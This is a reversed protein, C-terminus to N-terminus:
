QALQSHKYIYYFHPNVNIQILSIAYTTSYIKVAYSMKWSKKKDSELFGVGVWGRDTPLSDRPQKLKPCLRLPPAPHLTVEVEHLLPSCGNGMKRNHALLGQVKPLEVCSNPLDSAQRHYIVPFSWFFKWARNTDFPSCRRVCSWIKYVPRLHM